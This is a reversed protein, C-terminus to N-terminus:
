EQMNNVHANAHIKMNFSFLQSHLYIGHQIGLDFVLEPFSNPWRRRGGLNFRFLSLYKDSKYYKTGQITALELLILERM